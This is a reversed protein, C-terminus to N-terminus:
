FSYFLRDIYIWRDKVNEQFIFKRSYEALFINCLGETNMVVYYKKPKATGLYFVSMPENDNHLLFCGKDM